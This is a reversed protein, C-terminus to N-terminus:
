IDFYFTVLLTPILIKIKILDFGAVQSKAPNELLRYSPIAQLFNGANGTKMTQTWM